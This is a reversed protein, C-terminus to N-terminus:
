GNSLTILVLGLIFLLFMAGILGNTGKPANRFEKWVFVGWIMAVVPAANSLAYAIAPNASGAGMFSIVMGGMWIFGGLAGILHTRASGAFYDKMTVKNGEVPHSMAFGNFIPTSLLAGLGFFFVGTYPTLTGTGGAVYEPNLSKVVLGYFFMIAVGAILALFIGKSPSVKSGKKEREAPEAMANREASSLMGYAKGCILIAAIIVVVGVWLLGQNGPYAQGSAVILLYNFIIGGIWALGGGIPFGVSMGAVAMAATLFITGFNWVVGGLVAYGVSTWDLNALNDFFTPGDHGLSGVTLAGLLATLFVGISFDWYFLEFSWRKTAVMKQTNGWSGWCICCTICCLLALAYNNVLVM